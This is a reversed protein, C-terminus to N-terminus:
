LQYNSAKGRGTRTQGRCKLQKWPPGSNRTQNQNSNILSGMLTFANLHRTLPVLLTSTKMDGGSGQLDSPGPVLCEIINLPATRLATLSDQKISAQLCDLDSNRCALTLNVVNISVGESLDQMKQPLAQTISMILFDLEEAAEHVKSASKGKAKDNYGGSLM